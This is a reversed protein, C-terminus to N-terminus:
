TQTISTYMCARPPPHARTPPARAATHRLRNLSTLLYPTLSVRLAAPPTHPTLRRVSSYLLGATSDGLLHTSSALPLPIHATHASSASAHPPRRTDHTRAPAPLPRAANYNYHAGLQRSRHGIPCRPGPCHCGVASPARAPRPVLSYAASHGRTGSYRRHTHIYQTAVTNHIKTSHADHM